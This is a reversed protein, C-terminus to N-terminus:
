QKSSLFLYEVEYNMNSLSKIYYIFNLHMVVYIIKRICTTMCPITEHNTLSGIKVQYIASSLHVTDLYHLM